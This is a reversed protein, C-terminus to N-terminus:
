GTALSLIIDAAANAGDDICAPFNAPHSQAANLAHQWLGQRFDTRTMGAAPFSDDLWSKLMPFEPFDPREVWAIPTATRWCESLVGYGPKCLVVDVHQMLDIPRIDASFHIAQVNEPSNAPADPILFLWDPMNTLAQVDYPPNGCGGFLVLAKNRTTPAIPNSINRPEPAILPINKQTPSVPMHMAMPPTLLVDCAAYADSLKRLIADGADLWHEYITFWDLTALGISPVGLAKAAPFALPSIDSIILAPHFSRLLAIEREIQDDFGNIWRRMQQISATRDEEIANKQVVGVDVPSSELIFDFVLRARIEAEPLACRILMACDPRLQHLRRLVPAMQALHGFGHGSIYVAIRM